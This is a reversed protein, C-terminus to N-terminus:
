WSRPGGFDRQRTNVQIAGRSTRQWRRGGTAGDLGAAAAYGPASALSAPISLLSKASTSVLAAAASMRSSGAEVDGATRRSKRLRPGAGAAAAAASTSDSGPIVASMADLRREQQSLSGSYGSEAAAAAPEAVSRSSPSLMRLHEVSSAASIDSCEVSFVPVSISGLHQQQPLLQIGDATQEPQLQAAEKVPSSAATGGQPSGMSSFSVDCLQIVSQQLAVKDHQQAVRTHAEAAAAGTHALKWTFYEEAPADMIDLVVRLDSAIVFASTHPTVIQHLPALVLSHANSVATAVSGASLASSGRSAAQATDIDPDIASEPEAADAGGATAIAVAQYVEHLYVALLSVPEGIM